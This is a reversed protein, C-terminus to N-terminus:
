NFNLLNSNMPVSCLCPLVKKERKGKRVCLVKFMLLFQKLLSHIVAYEFARSLSVFREHLTYISKHLVKPPTQTHTIQLALSCAQTVTHIRTHTDSRYRWAPWTCTRSSVATEQFCRSSWYFVASNLHLSVCRAMQACLCACVCVCVCYCNNGETGCFM